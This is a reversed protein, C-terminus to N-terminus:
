SQQSGASCSVEIVDARRASKGRVPKQDEVWFGHGDSQAIRFGQGRLYNAVFQARRESLDLNYAEEGTYDAYGRVQYCSEKSLSAFAVRSSPPLYSEDFAFFASVPGVPDAISVGAEHINTGAGHAAPFSENGSVRASSAIQGSKVPSVNRAPLAIGSLAAENGGLFAEISQETKVPVLPDVRRRQPAINRVVIREEEAMPYSADLPMDVPVATLIPM